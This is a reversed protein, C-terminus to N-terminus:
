SGTLGVSVAVRTVRGGEDVFVVQWRKSVLLSWTALEGSDCWVIDAAPYSDQSKGGPRDDSFRSHVARCDFGDAQMMTRARAIETGLPIRALVAERTRKSDYQMFDHHFLRGAAAISAVAVAALGALWCGKLIGM